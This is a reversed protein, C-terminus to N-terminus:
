KLHQAIELMFPFPVSIFLITAGTRPAAGVVAVAHADAALGM